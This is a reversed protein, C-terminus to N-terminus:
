SLSEEISNTQKTYEYKNLNQNQEFEKDVHNLLMKLAPNIKDNAELSPLNVGSRATEMFSAESQLDSQDLIGQERKLKIWKSKILRREKLKHLKEPIDERVENILDLEQM